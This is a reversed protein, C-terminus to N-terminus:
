STSFKCWFEHNFISVDVGCYDCFASKMLYEQPCITIKVSDDSSPIEKTISPM